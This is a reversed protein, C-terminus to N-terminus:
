YKCTLLELFENSIAKLDLHKKLEHSPDISKDFFSPNCIIKEYFYSGLTHQYYYVRSETLRLDKFRDSVNDFYNVNRFIDILTTVGVLSHRNIDNDHLLFSFEMDDLENAEVRMINYITEIYAALWYQNLAIDDLNFNKIIEEQNPFCRTYFIHHNEIGCELKWISCSLFSSKEVLNSNTNLQYRIKNESFCEYRDSKEKEKEVYSQPETIFFIKQGLSQLLIDYYFTGLSIRGDNNFKDSFVDYSISNKSNILRPSQNPFGLLEEIDKSSILWVNKKM